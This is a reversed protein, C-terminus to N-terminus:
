TRMNKPLFYFSQILPNLTTILFILPNLTEKIKPSVKKKEKKKKKGVRLMERERERWPSGKQYVRNKLVLFVIFKFGLNNLRM